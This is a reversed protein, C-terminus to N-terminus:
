SFGVEKLKALMDKKRVPKVLYGDCMNKFSDMITKIDDLTSTMIVKPSKKTVNFTSQELERITKLTEQGDIVPMLIDLCILDYPASSEMAHQVAELAETGSHAISCQGVEKLHGSLVRASTHDDDVILIKM